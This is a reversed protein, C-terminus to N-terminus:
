FVLMLNVIPYMFCINDVNGVQEKEALLDSTTAHPAELFEILKAVIDEQICMFNRILVVEWQSAHHCIAYISITLVYNLGYLASFTCEFGSSSNM